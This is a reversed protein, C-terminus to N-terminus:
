NKQKVNDTEKKEEIPESLNILTKDSKGRCHQYFECRGGFVNNCHDFNKPFVGKDVCSIIESANNLVANGFEESIVDVIFQTSGQYTIGWQGGCREGNIINNCTKHSSDSEHGCVICKKKRAIKKSMVAYASVEIPITWDAGKTKAQINLIQQYLALQQSNRVSDESYASSATKNDILCIRGDNLVAVFEAIGNVINGNDDVVEIQRQLTLILKFQPLIDKFYAELMLPGKRSLSLWSGYNYSVRDKEPITLWNTNKMTDELEGRWVDYGVLPESFQKGIEMKDDDSLIDLDFDSKFYKIYPNLPLDVTAGKVKSTQDEAQEWRENFIQIAEALLKPDNRREHNELMHNCGADIASGFFLASSKIPSRLKDIYHYKYSAACGNYRTIASNSIRIVKKDSM